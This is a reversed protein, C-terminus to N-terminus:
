IQKMEAEGYQTAYKETAAREEERVARAWFEVEKMKKQKDGEFAEKEKKILFQYYTM